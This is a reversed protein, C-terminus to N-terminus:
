KIEWGDHGRSIMLIAHDLDEQAEEVSIRPDCDEHRDYDTPSQCLDGCNECLGFEHTTYFHRVYHDGSFKFTKWYGYSGGNSSRGAEYASFDYITFDKRNEV